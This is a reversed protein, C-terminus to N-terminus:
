MEAWTEGMHHNQIAHQKKQAEFPATGNEPEGGSRPSILQFWGSFFTDTGLGIM